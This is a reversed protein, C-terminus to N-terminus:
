RDIADVSTGVFKYGVGHQTRIYRPTAPDTEIKRRLQVIVNDVTRGSAKKRKRGWVQNILQERSFVQGSHNVFFRLLRLELSTAPVLRGSRRLEMRNFDVAIEGFAISQEDVM